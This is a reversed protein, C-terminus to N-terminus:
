GVTVPVRIECIDLQGKLREVEAQSQKLDAQAQQLAVSNDQRPARTMFTDGEITKTATKTKRPPKTKAVEAKASVDEGAAAQNLLEDAKAPDLQQSNRSRM